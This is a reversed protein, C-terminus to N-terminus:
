KQKDHKKKVVITATIEPPRAEKPDKLVDVPKVTFVLTKIFVKENQVENIWGSLVITEKYPNINEILEVLEYWNEVQKIREM